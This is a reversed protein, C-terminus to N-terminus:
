IEIIKKDLKKQIETRESHGRDAIQRLAAALPNEASVARKAILKVPKDSSSNSNQDDRSQDSSSRQSDRDEM